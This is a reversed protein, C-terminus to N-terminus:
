PKLQKFIESERKIIEIREKNKEISNNEMFYQWDQFNYKRLHWAEDIQNSSLNLLNPDSEWKDGIINVIDVLKDKEKEYCINYKKEEENNPSIRKHFKEYFEDPKINSLQM